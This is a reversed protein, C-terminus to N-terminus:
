AQQKLHICTEQVQSTVQGSANGCTSKTLVKYGRCFGWSFVTM